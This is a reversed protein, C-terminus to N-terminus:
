ANVADNRTQIEATQRDTVAEATEARKTEAILLAADKAREQEDIEIRQKKSSEVLYQQEQIEKENEKLSQLQNVIRSKEDRAIEALELNFEHKKLLYQTDFYVTDLIMQNLGKELGKRIKLYSANRERSSQLPFELSESERFYFYTRALFLVARANYEKSPAYKIASKYNSIAEKVEGKKQYCIAMDLHIPYSYENSSCYDLARKYALISKDYLDIERYASGQLRYQVRRGSNSRIYPLIRKSHSIISRYNETQKDFELQLGATKLLSERSNTTVANDWSKDLYSTVLSDNNTMLGADIIEFYLTSLTPEGNQTILGECVKYKILALVYTKKTYHYLQGIDFVLTKSISISANAKSIAYAKILKDLAWEPAVEKFNTGFQQLVDYKWRPVGLSDVVKFVLNFDEEAAKSLVSNEAIGRKIHNYIFVSDQNQGFSL